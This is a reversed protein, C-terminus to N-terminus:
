RVRTQFRIIGGEGPELPDTIEWRLAMSGASNVEAFFEHPLSCQSTDAVYELRTTLNDIITVNGITQDGTNDFRLTFSVIEGPRATKDSAVKCIRLQPSKPRDFRYVVEAEKRGALESALKGDLVVQVRQDAAWAYAAQVKTALRAKEAQDFIGNHIIQFDEYPMFGDQFGRVIQENIVGGAQQRERNISPNKAGIQGIPQIPQISTTAVQNEAHLNPKMPYEFGAVRAHREHARLSDVRRVVSFRPAYICVKNSPAVVRDGDLTDYHAITDEPEVGEVTFNVKVRAPSIYDGGDCLYEDRPWPGSLGTPRWPGTPHYGGSQCAPGCHPCVIEPAVPPMDGPCVFNKPLPELQPKPKADGAAPADVQPAADAPSPQLEAVAQALDVQASVTPSAEQQAEAEPAAGFIAEHTGDNPMQCASFGLLGCLLLGRGARKLWNLRKM